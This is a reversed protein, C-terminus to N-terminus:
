KKAGITNAIWKLVQAKDNANLHKVFELRQPKSAKRWNSLLRDIPNHTDKLFGAAIAAQRASRYKGDIYDQWHTPFDRALRDEIRARSTSGTVRSFSRINDETESEEKTPRGERRKPRSEVLLRKLNPRNECLLIFEDYTIAFEGHGMGPGLPWSAVLWEGVSAFPKGTAPNVSQRWTENDVARQVWNPLDNKVEEGTRHVRDFIKNVANSHDFM